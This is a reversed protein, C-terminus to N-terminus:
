SPVEAKENLHQDIREFIPATNVFVCAIDPALEFRPTNIDISKLINGTAHRRGSAYWDCFMEILDVINMGCIGDDFHQPHHRNHEYHHALAPMKDLTAWYEASGFVLGSLGPTFEAFMAAEPEALKSMDHDPARFALAEAIAAYRAPGGGEADLAPLLEFSNELVCCLMESVAGDACRARLVALPSVDLVECATTFDCFGAVLEPITFDELTGGFAHVAIRARAEPEAVYALINNATYGLLTGVDAIHKETKVRWDDM